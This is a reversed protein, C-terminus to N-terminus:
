QLVVEYHDPSFSDDSKLSIQKSLFGELQLVGENEEGLLLDIISPHAIVMLKECPYARAEAVVERFLQYCITTPSKALGIGCCRDCEKMLMRGLSDRTRKRTMEVLGLESLQVIHTKAKDRKLAEALVEMLRQKNEEEQMDIFDVVIIGGLNRLRLQHVIEHVAELNTKFGTEEMNRSGVFSGSNVDIAILAETQDIVIHGGSKLKVRRKLASEIADEVGYVDFIPREGPYYYLKKAVEPMFRRAFKKMSEYAERSDIHIKEVEEDVYDRMVRLYLNLEKHILTGLAANKSRKEIDNWLRLLYDLDQQIEDAAKGEAVTRIILGGKAPAIAHAIALLREREAPDELRRAIGTHELYPLYVLYRGALGIQSTLRPGKSAIPERSVQVMLEQGDRLLNAIPPANRRPQSSAAAEESSEGEEGHEMEDSLYAGGGHKSTAIDGAYLFGAKDMGIDVFAAQIGPLVRQVRAKYINGKLGREREIYIEEAQGNEIRAVRTEFPTVNVLLDVSM